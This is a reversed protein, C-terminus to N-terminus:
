TTTREHSDLAYRDDAAPQGAEGCGEIEFFGTFVDFEELATTEQAAAGRRELDVTDFDIVSLM